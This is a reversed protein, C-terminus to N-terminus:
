SSTTLLGARRGLTEVARVVEPWTAMAAGTRAIWVADWGPLVHPQLADLAARLRRKARNRRVASGLQRGATVGFRTLPMDNPCAVLVVFPHAYSTGSTRVRQFDSSGTLRHKRDM